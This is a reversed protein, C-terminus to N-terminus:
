IHERIWGASMAAPTTELIVTQKNQRADRLASDAEPHLM